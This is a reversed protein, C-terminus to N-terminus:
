KFTIQTTLEIRARNYDKLGEITQNQLRYTPALTLSGLESKHLTYSYSLWLYSHNTTVAEDVDPTTAGLDYWVVLSGPGLAGILKIRTIWGSYAELGTESNSVTQNTLGAFASVGFGALKPLGIEAGYTMPAAQGDSSISYLFEPIIKLGAISVPYKVDLTYQDKTDKDMPSTSTIATDLKVSGDGQDLIYTFLTDTELEFFEDVIKIGSNNDVLINADLRSGAIEYNLNFGHAANNNFITYPIDVMLSPYFHIDHLPSGDMPILGASWGFHQGSRGFYLEMFSVTGRGAAPNSLGNPTTGTGFSGIWYAVGNHGLRTKFFYGDGIDASLLLRARYLYYFDSSQIGYQGYDKVDLRPRVRADGSLTIDAYAGTMLILLLLFSISKRMIDEV